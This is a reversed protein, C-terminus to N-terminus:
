RAGRAAEAYGALQISTVVYTGDCDLTPDFDICVPAADGVFRWTLAMGKENVTAVKVVFIRSLDRILEKEDASLLLRMPEGSVTRRMVTRGGATPKDGANNVDNAM